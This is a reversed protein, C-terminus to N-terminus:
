EPDIQPIQEICTLLLSLQEAMVFFADAKPHAPIGVREGAQRLREGASEANIGMDKLVDFDDVYVTLHMWSMMAVYFFEERTLNGQQRRTRLMEKLRRILDVMKYHDTPNPGVQNDWNQIGIWVESLLEEFLPVFDRNASAPRPYPYSASSKSGHNLDMGFLRYYANRRGARMDPRINSAFSQMLYNSSDKYFLEETTRLWRNTGPRSRPFGLREGHCYEYIVREFIEYIRTNEILYAYILHWPRYAGHGEQEFLPFARVDSDCVTGDRSGWLYEMLYAIVVPDSRGLLAEEAHQNGGMVRYLQIFM